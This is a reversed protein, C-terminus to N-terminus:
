VLCEVGRMDGTAEARLTEAILDDILKKQADTLWTINDVYHQLLPVAFPGLVHVAKQLYDWLLPWNPSWGVDRAGQPFVDYDGHPIFKPAQLPGFWMGKQLDRPFHLSFAKNSVPVPAPPIPPNPPTPPVPSPSPFPSPGVDSGGLQQWLLRKQDWTMGTFACVGDSRFQDDSFAVLIESDAGLIGAYTVQVAPSLGWTRVDYRGSGQEKGSLMMAHGKTPDPTSADWIAGPRANALWTNSLSALWLVGGFAWAGLDLSARDNPNITLVSRVKRPGAPGIIGAKWEPIMLADNLGNDGGSLVLYRSVTQQEDFAVEQGSNGTWCQSAHECAAYYCDGVRNNGLIPFALKEGQSWDWGAPPTPMAAMLGHLHLPLSFRRGHLTFRLQGRPVCCIPGAPTDIITGM